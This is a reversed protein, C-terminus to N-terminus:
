EYSGRLVITDYFPISIERAGRQSHVQLEIKVADSETSSLNRFVLNSVAVDDGTLREASASDLQVYLTGGSGYFRVIHAEEDEDVTNLVLIGPNSGFTSLSTNISVADRAERAIRELGLAGGTTVQRFRELEAFSGSMTILVNVVLVFLFAFIAIYVVAEMMSLGSNSYSKNM